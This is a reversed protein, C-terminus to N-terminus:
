KLLISVSGQLNTNEREVEQLKFRLEGIQKCNEGIFFLYNCQVIKIKIYKFFMSAGDDNSPGITSSSIQESQRARRSSYLTQEAEELQQRM